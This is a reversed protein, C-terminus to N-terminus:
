LDREQGGIVRVTMRGNSVYLRVTRGQNGGVDQSYLRLGLRQMTALAASANRTGIDFSNTLNSSVLMNAGGAMRIVMRRRDAGAKVMEEILSTIGFDVYKYSTGESGNVREPLVAHLMGALRVQPDFVGFGICSGLGYAVLVDGPNRSIVMEGLGISIHNLSFM